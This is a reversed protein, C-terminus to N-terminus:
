DNLGQNYGTIASYLENIGQLETPLQQLVENAQNLETTLSSQQASIYSQEKTINANLTSEITSNANAALSLMGSSSSSGANNLMTSFNQGWGCANQFFGAVSSYDTNLVSDLANADFTLSGDNNVSIGLMTLNNIDSSNTYGLTSTTANTPDYLNSTVTLAGKFGVTNSALQLSESGNSNNVPSATFGFSNGPDNIYAELDGLTAGGEASAVTSMDITQATGSGVQVTVSGTLTDNTGAEGLIGSDSTMPTYGSDTYTIATPTTAEIASTVAIAGSSGATQSTLTLTSMGSSTAIGATVGLGPIEVESTATLAGNSSTLTMTSTGNGNDAIAATIGLGSLTSNGDIFSELSSITNQSTGTALDGAPADSSPGLYITEATGDGAQVTLTGSLYASNTATMTGSDGGPAASYSVPTSTNASNIANVLGSLTNYGSASGTYITDSAPGDGPVAGIQITEANGNGAQITMSGSLTVGAVASVADLSGNPNVSNIGTLLDQQLISLTPSGFLPEPTGSSTNSEQTNVASVLSNYDSVFQNVASEVSSNDNGIIVQVQELSGGTEQSSPALLQFTVGPILNSVTNSASTLNIGDVTLSANSGTVTSAYALATSGDVLSSSVALTGASGSTGSTLQLSATGDSNNVISADFGLSTSNTHIYQQLATLTNGGVESMPISQMSGNVTVNLTGTLPESSSAVAALLAASTTSGSGTGTGATVTAGLTNSAAASLSNNTVAINGNAGSTGSVLSLRSGTADTLVSATIGVGSSNIASALGTLTNDSSSLTITHATGSGVKLTVSGSLTDSSKAIEALYGSSTQALSNVVVTHTGATASSTAATLELVNTDSSSGEKQALIGQLDTLQSIDTSVNSLLSGLSSIATDQSELSTLQTQWPTEVKQLNGVIEAVTSSVNFGAGSTPSGFDLGVTGM